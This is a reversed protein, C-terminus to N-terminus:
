DFENQETITRQREKERERKREKKREKKRGIAITIQTVNDSDWNVLELDISIAGLVYWYAGTISIRPKM